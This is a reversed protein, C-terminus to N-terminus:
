LQNMMPDHRDERRRMLWRFDKAMPSDIKIDDMSGKHLYYQAM